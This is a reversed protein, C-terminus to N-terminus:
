RPTESAPTVGLGELSRNKNKTLGDVKWAGDEKRLEYRLPLGGTGSAPDVPALTVEVRGSDGRIDLAKIEFSAVLEEHNAARRECQDLSGGYLELMARDTLLYRCHSPNRRVLVNNMLRRVSEGAGPEAPHENDPNILLAWYGIVLAVGAAAFLGVVMPGPLRLVLWTAAAALVALVVGVVFMAWPVIIEHTQSGDPATFTCKEAGPPWLLISSTASSGARFGSPLGLCADEAYLAWAWLLVLGAAAWIAAVGVARPSISRGRVLGM